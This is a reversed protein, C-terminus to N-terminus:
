NSITIGDDSCTYGYQHGDGPNDLVLPALYACLEATSTGPVVLVPDEAPDQDRPAAGVLLFQPTNFLMGALRRLAQEAPGGGVSSVTDTLSVGMLDELIAEEAPAIRPETIVRDKLASALDWMDTGPAGLGEDVLQAIFDDGACPGGLPGTCDGHLGPDTGPGFEAELRLLTVLDTGDFGGESDSLFAGLDRLVQADQPEEECPFMPMDGGCNLEPTQGTDPGMRDPRNWWMAQAISDLLPWAGMRHIGDGVGNGQMAPDAASRTFPDFIAPLHYPTSASCTAPPAQNFYDHTAVATLLARLSYSEGVFVDALVQLTDRQAGNRPFNNAVTLPFGMGEVWARNATNMAILYAAGRRPDVSGDGAVELGLDLLDAFGARLEDDLNSITAAIPNGIDTYDSVMYPLYESTQMSAPPFGPSTLRFGGCAVAAGWPTVHNAPLGTSLLVDQGVSFNFFRFVSHSRKAESEGAQPGYVALEFNGPIPWHRNNIELADYTVSAQTMHCQNCETTRGLYAQEFTMGFNTRRMEELEEPTVNGAIIPASMTAFMQARYIPSLDDLRLGSYVVDPLTFAGGGFAATPPNDRIFAALTDTDGAATGVGYCQDNRRDGSLNVKLEEFLYTKWRELYLDGRTLGRAVVERGNAGLADLQEIMSVLLRVERISEPKRGHLYPIARKVWAEDGADCLEEGEGPGGPDGDDTGPDQNGSDETDSDPGGSTPTSDSNPGASGSPGSTFGSDADDDSSSGGRGGCAVLAVSAALLVLRHMRQNDSCMPM